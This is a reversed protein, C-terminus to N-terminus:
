KTPLCASKILGCTVNAISQRRRADLAIQLSPDVLRVLKHRRARREVVFRQATMEYYGNRNPLEDGVFRNLKIERFVASRHRGIEAAIKDVSMKANFLDDITRRERLGLETLAM